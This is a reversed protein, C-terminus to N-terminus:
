IQKEIERLYEYVWWVGLFIAGIGVFIFAIKILWSAILWIQFNYSIVTQIGNYISTEKTTTEDIRAVENSLEEISYQTCENCKNAPFYVATDGFLINEEFLHSGSDYFCKLDSVLSDRNKLAFSMQTNNASNNQFLVSITGISASILNGSSDYNNQTVLVTWNCYLITYNATVFPMAQVDASILVPVTRGSLLSKKLDLVLPNTDYIDDYFQVYTHDSVSNDNANIATQEWFNVEANVSTLIFSLCIIVFLTLLLKHKM